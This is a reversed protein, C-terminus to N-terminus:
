DKYNRLFAIIKHRIQSTDKLYRAQSIYEEIIDMWNECYQEPNAEVYKKAEILSAGTRLKYQRIAELKKSM